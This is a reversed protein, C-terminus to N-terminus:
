GFLLIVTLIVIAMAHLLLIKLSTKAMKPNKDKLIFYMILGGIVGFFIPLIYWAKTNKPLDNPTNESMDM